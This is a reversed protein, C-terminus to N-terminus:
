YAAPASPASAMMYLPEVIADVVVPTNRASPLVVCPTGCCTVIVQKSNGRDGSSDNTVNYTLGLVANCGQQIAQELIQSQADQLLRSVMGGMAQQGNAGGGSYFAYSVSGWIIAKSQVIEFGPLSPLTSAYVKEIEASRHYAFRDGPRKGQPIKVRVTKGDVLVNMAMGGTKDVPVTINYKKQGRPMEPLTIGAIPPVYAGKLVGNSAHKSASGGM